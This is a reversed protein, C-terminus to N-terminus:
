DSATRSDTNNPSTFVHKIQPIDHGDKVLVDRIENIVTEHIIDVRESTALRNDRYEHDKVRQTARKEQGVRWTSNSQIDQKARDLSGEIDNKSTKLIQVEDSVLELDAAFTAVKGTEVALAEIRSARKIDEKQRLLDAEEVLYKWELLSKIQKSNNDVQQTFNYGEKIDDGFTFFIVVGSIVLVIFVVVAWIAKGAAAGMGKTTGELVDSKVTKDM